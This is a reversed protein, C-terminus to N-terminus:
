SLDAGGDKQLLKSYDQSRGYSAMDTPQRNNRGFGGIGSFISRQRPDFPKQDGGAQVCARM